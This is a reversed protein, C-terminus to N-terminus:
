IREIAYTQHSISHIEYLLMYIYQHITFSMYIDDNTSFSMYVDKQITFSMYIYDISNFSSNMCVHVCDSPARRGLQLTVCSDVSCESIHYM